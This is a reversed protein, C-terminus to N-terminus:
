PSVPAWPFAESSGALGEGEPEVAVSLTRPELGPPLRLEGEFGQFHEFRMPLPGLELVGPQGDRTGDLRLRVTGKSEGLEAILQTVTFSYRFSRPDAGRTLRLDHVRVAGKGGEQILRKLYTGEKLLALRQDQAQKLQEQLSRNTEREIQRSRELVVSEQRLAALSEKLRGLEGAVSDREQGLTALGSEAAAGTRARGLDFGLWFVGALALALLALGLLRSWIGIAAV